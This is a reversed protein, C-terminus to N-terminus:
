HLHSYYAEFSSDLYAAVEAIEIQVDSFYNSWQQYISHPTKFHFVLAKIMALGQYSSM